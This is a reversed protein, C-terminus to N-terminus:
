LFDTFMFQDMAQKTRAVSSHYFVENIECCLFRRNLFRAVVATTASGACPDFVIDGENSITEMIDRWLRLNKQSPHIANAGGGLPFSLVNSKCHGNFPAGPKKAYVALETANLYVHEGNMVSPNVKAYVLPRTPYGKDAFFKIITSFQQYGCFVVFTNEIVQDLLILFPILDFTIDDASGANIRRLGGEEFRNVEGYPIDTMCCHAKMGTAIMKQM